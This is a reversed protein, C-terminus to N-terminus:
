QFALADGDACGAGVVEEVQLGIIGLDFLYLAEAALRDGDIGSAVVALQDRLQLRQNGLLRIRDNM